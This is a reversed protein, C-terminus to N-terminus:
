KPEIFRVQPRAGLEHCHQVIIPYDNLFSEHIIFRKRGDSNCIYINPNDDTKYIIYEGDNINVMDDLGSISQINSITGDTEEMNNYTILLSDSITFGKIRFNCEEYYFAYRTKGYKKIPLWHGNRIFSKLGSFKNDSNYKFRYENLLQDHFRSKANYNIFSIVYQEHYSGYREAGLIRISDNQIGSRVKIYNEFDFINLDAATRLKEEAIIKNLSDIQGRYSKTVKEVERKHLSNLSDVNVIDAKENKDQHKTSCAVIVILSILTFRM